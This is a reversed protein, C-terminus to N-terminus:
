VKGGPTDVIPTLEDFVSRQSNAIYHMVITGGHNILVVSLDSPFQPDVQVKFDVHVTSPQLAVLYLTFSKM